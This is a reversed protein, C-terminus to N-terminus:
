EQKKKNNKQEISLLVAQVLYRQEKDGNCTSLTIIKDEGTVDAATDVNDGMKNHAFVKQLYWDFIDSDEFDFSELLHRNDYTYAAFVKYHLIRDPLYVTIDQHEQFFKRDQFDRLGRFMSGNKMNHGYIVTNLDLFDKANYDETFIAGELKEKGDVTHTLYYANDGEKQVVPYDIKTDPIQIWAYIDPYDKQLAEFDVPIELDEVTEVTYKPEAPAETPVPTPTETPESETEVAAQVEVTTDLKNAKAQDSTQQFAKERIADYGTGANKEEMYSSIGKGACFVGAFILVVALLTWTKKKM